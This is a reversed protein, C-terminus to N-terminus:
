KPIEQAPAYMWFVVILVWLGLRGHVTIGDKFGNIKRAHVTGPLPFSVLYYHM